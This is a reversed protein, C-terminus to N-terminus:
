PIVHTDLLGEYVGRLSVSCREAVQAETLGSGAAARLCGAVLHRKAQKDMVSRSELDYKGAGRSVPDALTVGAAM